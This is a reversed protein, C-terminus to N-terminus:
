LQGSFQILSISERSLWRIKPNISEDNIMEELFPVADSLYPPDGCKKIGSSRVEEDKSFIRLLFKASNVLNRLSRGPSIDELDLLDPKAQKGDVLFPKGSIPEFLPAFENFDDDMETEDNVVIRVGGDQDPWNYVSGQRYLEFFKELNPDGSKALSTITEAKLDDDDVALTMLLSNLETDDIKQESAQGFAGKSLVFIFM